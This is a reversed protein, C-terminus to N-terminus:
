AAESTEEVEESVGVGAKFIFYGILMEGYASYKWVMEPVQIGIVGGWLDFGAFSGILDALGFVVLLGGVVMLVMKM